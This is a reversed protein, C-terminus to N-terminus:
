FGGGLFKVEQYLAAASGRGLPKAVWLCLFAKQLERWFAKDSNICCQM